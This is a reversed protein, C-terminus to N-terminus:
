TKSIQELEYAYLARRLYWAQKSNPLILDSVVKTYIYRNKLIQSPALKRSLLYRGFNKISERYYYQGKKDMNAKVSKDEFPIHSWQPYARAMIDDHFPHSLIISSDLSTCYDFFDHDIYPCHVKSVDSFISFPISSVARRTRNWFIFSLAPNGSATHKQLEETLRAKAVDLSIKKYFEPQFAKQNFKEFQSEELILTALEDLKQEKFLYDKKNNLTQGSSIIGGALGDYITSVSQSQFYSKLPLAWSHGGGCLNTYYIDDFVADFWSNPKDIIKHDISFENTLLDAIRVDENTTPPRYKLTVCRNPKYGQKLLEFLINRSDRGGSLPIEFHEDDPLRKGIANQFHHIYGDIADNYSLHQNNLFCDSIINEKIDLTGDSWTITCNAPMRRIHKFPTDNGIMYGLRFHISLAPYDLERSIDAKLIQTISPSIYLSENFYAYYLPFMGYRDNTITLKNGNWLWDVFVGDDAINKNKNKIRHGLKCDHEGKTEVKGDILQIYLYSDNKQAKNNIM